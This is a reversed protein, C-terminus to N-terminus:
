GPAKTLIMVFRADTAVWRWEEQYGAKRFRIRVAEPAPSSIELVYQGRADTRAIANDATVEVDALPREQEDNVTGTLRVSDVGSLRWWTFASGTVIAASAAKLLARRGVPWGLRPTLADAAAGPDGNAVGQIDIMSPLPTGDLLWPFVPKGLGEARSFEFRVFESTAAHASWCLILVRASRISKELQRKWNAGVPISEVDFFIRYGRSRLAAVFPRVREADERSYSIFADFRM